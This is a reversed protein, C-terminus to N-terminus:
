MFLSSRDGIAAIVCRTSRAPAWRASLYTQAGELGRRTTNKSSEDGESRKKM